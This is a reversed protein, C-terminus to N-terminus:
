LERSLATRFSTTEQGIKEMKGNESFYFDHYRASCTSSHSWLACSTHPRRAECHKQVKEEMELESNRNRSKPFLAFPYM